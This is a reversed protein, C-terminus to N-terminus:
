SIIGALVLGLSVLTPHPPEEERDDENRVKMLLPIVSFHSSYRSPFLSKPSSYNQHNPWYFHLLLPCPSFHFWPSSLHNYFIPSKLLNVIVSPRNESVVRGLFLDLEMGTAGPREKRAGFVVVTDVATTGGGMGGLGVGEIIGLSPCTRDYNYSLGYSGRGPM